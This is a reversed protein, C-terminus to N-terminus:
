KYGEGDGLELLLESESEPKLTNNGTSPSSVNYFLTSKVHLFLDVTLNKSLPCV